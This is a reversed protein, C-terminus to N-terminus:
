RRAGQMLTTQSYSQGSYTAQTLRNQRGPRITPRQGAYRQINGRPTVPTASHLGISPDGPNALYRTRSTGAMTRVGPLARMHLEARPPGSETWNVTGTGVGSVAEAHMWPTRDFRIADDNLYGPARVDQDDIGRALTRRTLTPAAGGPSTRRRPTTTDSPPPAGRQWMGTTM